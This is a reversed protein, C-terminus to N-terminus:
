CGYFTAIKSTFLDTLGVQVIHTEAQARTAQRLQESSYDKGQELLPIVTSSSRPHFFDLWRETTTDRPNEIGPNWNGIIDTESYLEWKGFVVGLKRIGTESDWNGFIGSGLKRIGSGLKRIGSDLKRIGSELKRIGSELKRIRTESYWEGTESYWRSEKCHMSKYPDKRSSRSDQPSGLSNSTLPRLMIQCLDKHSSRKSIRNFDEEAIGQVVIKCISQTPAQM